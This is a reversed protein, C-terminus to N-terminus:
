PVVYKIKIRKISLNKAKVKPIGTNNSNSKKIKAM